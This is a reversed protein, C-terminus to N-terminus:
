SILGRRQMEKNLLSLERSMDGTLSSNEQARRILYPIVDKVPGYPVYKAVNFGLNALNFTINDSMGLLQCFNVNPHDIPINKEKMLDIQLANSEWNHSANVISISDPFQLLFRLASNYDSDTAVKDKQIPSDYGKEAARKREKEMYAGRVVKAGLIYNNSKAKEYSAKLYELRDHRYMQFTNYVIPKEKNYIAMSEDVLEDLPDQIWSEEADVFISVGFEHAKECLKKFREKMRHWQIEEQSTLKEKAQIKELVQMPIYGTLKTSIVPVNPNSYAFEVAKLNEDLTKQFDEDKNKAEVGYDLITLTNYKNLHDINRQCDLLSVGGCFHYFITAEIIPDALGLPMKAALNGFFSGIAVLRPNNMLKFLRYSKKLDRDSKASFAIETNYFDVKPDGPDSM